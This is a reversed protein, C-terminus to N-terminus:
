IKVGKLSNKRKFFLTNGNIRIRSFFTHFTSKNTLFTLVKRFNFIRFLDVGHGLFTWSVDLHLGKGFHKLSVRNQQSTKVTSFFVVKFVMKSRISTVILNRLVFFQYINSIYSTSSFKRIFFHFTSTNNSVSPFLPTLAMNQLCNLYTM